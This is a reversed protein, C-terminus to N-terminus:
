VETVISTNHQEMRKVCQYKDSSTQSSSRFGIYKNFVVNREDGRDQRASSMSLM